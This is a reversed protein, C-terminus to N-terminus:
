RPEPPEAEVAPLPGTNFSRRHLPSFGHRAIAARHAATAYGVHRDFGYQPFTVHLRHMVRDRTVKAIISAAAICASKCDGKRIVRHPVPDGPLSYGDVLVEEPLPDLAAIGARLASLNTVHLGNEDIAAPSASVVAMRSALRIILPYLRERARPTLKKSDRVGTLLEYEASGFGSYDFVVAAAVLPGALCGRGAEDAGAVEGGGGIELDFAFLGTVASLTAM